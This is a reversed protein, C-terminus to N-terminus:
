VFNGKVRTGTDLGQAEAEQLIRIVEDSNHANQIAVKLDIDAGTSSGAAATAVARHSALEQASPESSSAQPSAQGEELTFGAAIAEARIAEPTPDGKYNELFFKKGPFDPLQAREIALERELQTARENAAAERALAEDKLRLAADTADRLAGPVVSSTGQGQSADPAESAPNPPAGSTDSQISM